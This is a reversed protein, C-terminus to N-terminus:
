FMMTGLSLPSVKLGRLGLKRYELPRDESQSKLRAPHPSSSVSGTYRLHQGMVVVGVVGAGPSVQARVGVGWGGPGPSGPGRSAGASAPKSALGRLAAM